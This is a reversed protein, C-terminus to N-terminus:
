TEGSKIMNKEENNESLLLILHDLQAIRIQISLCECWIATEFVPDMFICLLCVVGVCLLGYNLKM